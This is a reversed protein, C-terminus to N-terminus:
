CLPQRNGEVVQSERVLSISCTYLPRSNEQYGVFTPIQVSNFQTYVYNGVQFHNRGLLANYVEWIKNRGQATMSRDKCAVRISIFVEDRAWRPSSTGATMILSYVLDQNVQNPDPLFDFFIQNPEALNESILVTRLDEVPTIYNM